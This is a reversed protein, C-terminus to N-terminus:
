EKVEKLPQKDNHHEGCKVCVFAEYGLVGHYFCVKKSGCKSCQFEKGRADKM